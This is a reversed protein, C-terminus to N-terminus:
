SIWKSESTKEIIRLSFMFIIVLIAFVVFGILYYWRGAFGGIDVYLLWFIWFVLAGLMVFVVDWLANLLSDKRNEFKKGMAWFITNEFIEWIVGVALVLLFIGWLPVLPPLDWNGPVSYLLSIILWSMVGFAVHGISYSDVASVGVHSLDQAVTPPKFSAHCFPCEKIDAPIEADCHPCKM